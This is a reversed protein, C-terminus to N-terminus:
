RKVKTLATSIARRSYRTGDPKYIGMAILAQEAFDVFGGSRVEGGIQAKDGVFADVTITYTPEKDFYHRWRDALMGIVNEFASLRCINIVSVPSLDREREAIFADLTRVFSYDRLERAPWHNLPADFPISIRERLARAMNVIRRTEKQRLVVPRPEQSAFYVSRIGELDERLADHPDPHDESKLVIPPAGADRLIGRIAETTIIKRDIPHTM